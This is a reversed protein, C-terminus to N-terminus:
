QSLLVSMGLNADKKIEMHAGNTLSASSFGGPGNLIVQTANTVIVKSNNPQTIMKPLQHIATGASTLLTTATTM